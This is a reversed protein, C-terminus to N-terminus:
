PKRFVLIPETKQGSNGTKKSFHDRGISLRLGTEQIFGVGQAAHIILDRNQEDINIVIHSGNKLIRHAETFTPILYGSVWASENPHDLWCQGPENFYCERDFYPPSTFVFDVSGDVVGDLVVESGHQRIDIKVNQAVSNLSKKLRCLDAYTKSAPETGIYTGNPHSAVFGLLRAGFGCSPDWVVPADVSKLFRRYIEFAATPKFWSVAARQVIFGYRVNKINIDFTEHCTVIMGDSLEYTYPKSTNLGLRYRLVSDRKKFDDFSRVPGDDVDWYSKFMAKLYPSGANGLSSIIDSQYDISHNKVRDIAASVSMDTEPYFWGHHAVYAQYFQHLLPKLVDRTFDRGPADPFIATENIRILEERSIIPDDDDKFKFANSRHALLGATADKVRAVLMDALSTPKSQEVSDDVINKAFVRRNHGNIFDCFRYQTEHWPAPEDCGCLCKPRVGGFMHKLTYSMLDIDHARNIHNGVSRRGSCQRGCELCTHDTFDFSRKEALHLTM